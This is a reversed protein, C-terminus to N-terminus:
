SRPHRRTVRVESECDFVFKPRHDLTLIEHAIPMCQM